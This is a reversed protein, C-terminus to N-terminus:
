QIFKIDVSPDDHFDALISKIKDNIPTNPLTLMLWTPYGKKIEPPAPRRIRGFAQTMKSQNTASIAYSLRPIDIGRNFMQYTALIIPCEKNVRKFYEDNKHKYSVCISELEATMRPSQSVNSGFYEGIHDSPIGLQMLEKKILALHYIEDSLILVGTYGANVAKNAYTAITKNYQESSCLATKYESKQLLRPDLDTPNVPAVYLRMPQANGELAVINDYGVHDLFVTELGDSREITASLMLSYKPNVYRLVQSFKEAGMIDAEDYIVLGFKNLFQTNNNKVASLFSQITGIVVPSDLRHCGEKIRGIQEKKIGLFKICANEAQYFLRETHVLFLVRTKLQSAIWLASATKGTGTSANFFCSYNANLMNLVENCAKEQNKNASPHKLDPQTPCYYDWNLKPYAMNYTVEFPYVNAYEKLLKLGYNLPTQICTFACNNKIYEREVYNSVGERNHIPTFKIHKTKHTLNKRMRAILGEYDVSQPIYFVVGASVSVPITM